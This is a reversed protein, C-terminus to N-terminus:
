NFVVLQYLKSIVIYTRLAVGRSCLCEECTRNGLSVVAM